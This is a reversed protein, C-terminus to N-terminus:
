AAGLERQTLTRIIGAVMAAYIAAAIGKGM